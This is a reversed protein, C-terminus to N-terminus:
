HLASEDFADVTGCIKDNSTNLDFSKASKISITETFLFVMTKVFIPLCLGNKTISPSTLWFIINLFFFIESVNEYYSSVSMKLLQETKRSIFLPHTEKVPLKWMLHVKMDGM